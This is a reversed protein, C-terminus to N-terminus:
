VSERGGCDDVILPGRTKAEAVAADVREHVRETQGRQRGGAKPMALQAIVDGLQQAPVWQGVRRARHRVVEPSKTEVAENFAHRAAVAIADCRGPACTAM